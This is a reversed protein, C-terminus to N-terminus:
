ERGFLQGVLDDIGDVLRPANGDAIEGNSRGPVQVHNSLHIPYSDTPDESYLAPGRGSELSIALRFTTTAYFTNTM